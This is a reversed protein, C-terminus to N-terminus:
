RREARRGLPNAGPLSDDRPDCAMHAREFRQSEIWVLGWVSMGTAILWYALRTWLGIAFLVLLVLLANEIQTM